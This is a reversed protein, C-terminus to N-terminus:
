ESSEASRREHSGLLEWSLYFPVLQSLGLWVFLLTTVLKATQLQQSLAAQTQRTLEASEAALRIYEDILPELESVSSNVRELDEAITQVNDGITLFSENATSLDDELARLGVPLEELGQGLELVTESLPSEPDYDIGLDFQIPVGFISREVQFANLIKLTDDIAGAAQAVNPIAAQVTELSDPVDRAAVQTVQELIPQTDNITDSLNVAALGVTDLGETVEGVTQKTLILTDDVTDLSESILALANEAAGGLDDIIQRSMFAGAASLALGAFGILVFAVGVIKRYMKM